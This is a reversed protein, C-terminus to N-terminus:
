WTGGFFESVTWYVICQVMTLLENGINTISGRLPLLLSKEQKSHQGGQQM